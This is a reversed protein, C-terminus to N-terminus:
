RAVQFWVTPNAISTYKVVLPHKINDAEVKYPSNSSISQLVPLFWTYYKWDLGSKTFTIKVQDTTGAIPTMSYGYSSAGGDTVFLFAYKNTPDDNPYYPNLGFAFLALTEGYKATTTAIATALLSSLGASMNTGKVDFAWLGNTTALGVNLPAYIFTVSIKSSTRAVMGLGDSNFDLYQFTEGKITISNYLKIGTTTPIYAVKILKDDSGESFSFTLNASTKVTSIVEDGVKFVVSSVEDIKSRSLGVKDIFTNYPETLKTMTMINGTKKGKLTIINDQHSMLIFEYDGRKGDTASGSPNAFYHLLTSYTDFTLVPGNDGILRYLCSDVTASGHDDLAVFAKDDTFNITYMYGGYKKNEEPYYELAWGYQSGTLITKYSDLTTSMRASASKDFLEKDDKLCSQLILASLILTVYLLKRM